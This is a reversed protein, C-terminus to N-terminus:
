NNRNMNNIFEVKDHTMEKFQEKTISGKKYLRDLFDVFNETLEVLTKLEYNNAYMVVVGWGMGFNIDKKYRIIVIYYNYM